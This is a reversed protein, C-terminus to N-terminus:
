NWAESKKGLHCPAANAFIVGDCNCNYFYCAGGNRSPVSLERAAVGGEEVGGYSPIGKDAGGHSPRPSETGHQHLCPHRPLVLAM